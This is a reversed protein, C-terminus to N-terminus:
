KLFVTKYSGDRQKLKLARYNKSTGPTKKSRSLHRNSKDGADKKHDPHKYEPAPDETILSKFDKKTPYDEEKETTHM